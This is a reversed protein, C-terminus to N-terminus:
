THQKNITKKLCFVAYSRRMLSQLESTHEESREALIKEVAEVDNWDRQRRQAVAPAVDGRQDGMEDLRPAARSKGVALERGGRHLPEFTMVPGAINALQAM